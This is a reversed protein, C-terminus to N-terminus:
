FGFGAQIGGTRHYVSTHFEQTIGSQYYELYLHKFVITIGYRNQVTLRNIDGAAITYPSSHNFVGGQLTADYGVLNVSLQDYLYYHLKRSAAGRNDSFPSYFNGLMTTLGTNLKDSLTGARASGYGALSFHTGASYLQREYNVQYNLALDNHVQNGLGQPQIDNLWRHIGEQMGKAGAVPGIIGTSLQTSIREGRVSNKAILFTKLLLVGAFPRDGYQIGPYEYHNPTYANHELALGYTIFGTRPRWLLAALPFKHLGPRVWELYIGQTYDRDTKTFFDNEYKVRVYHDSNINRFSVTNDIAQSFVVTPM